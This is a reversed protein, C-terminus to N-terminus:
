RSKKASSAQVQDLIGGATALLAGFRLFRTM